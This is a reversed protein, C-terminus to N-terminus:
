ALSFTQHWGVAALAGTLLCVVWLRSVLRQEMHEWLFVNVRLERPESKFKWFKECILFIFTVKGVAKQITVLLGGSDADGMRGATSVALVVKRWLPYCHLPCSDGVAAWRDGACGDCAPRQASPPAPRGRPDGCCAPCPM